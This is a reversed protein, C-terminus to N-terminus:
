ADLAVMHGIGEDLQEVARRFTSGLRTARGTIKEGARAVPVGLLVVREFLQILKPSISGRALVYNTRAIAQEAYRALLDHAGFGGGGAGLYNATCGVTQFGIEHQDAYWQCLAGHERSIVRRAILLDIHSLRRVTRKEGSRVM